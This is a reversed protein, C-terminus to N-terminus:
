PKDVSYLNYHPLFDVKFTNIPNLDFFYKVSGNKRVPLKVGKIGKRSLFGIPNELSLEM